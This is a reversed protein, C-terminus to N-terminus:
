TSRMAGTLHIKDMPIFKESFPLSKRTEDFYFNWINFLLSDFEENVFARAFKARIMLISALNTQSYPSLFYTRKLEAFKAEYNVKIENLKKIQAQVDAFEPNFQKNKEKIEQMKSNVAELKRSLQDIEEVLKKFSSHSDESSLEGLVKSFLIQFFRPYYVGKCFLFLVKMADSPTMSKVKPEFLNELHEYLRDIEPDRSTHNISNKEITSFEQVLSIAQYFSVKSFNLNLLKKAVLIVGSRSIRVSARRLNKLIEAIDQLDVGEKKELLSLFFGSANGQFESVFNVKSVVKIQQKYSANHLYTMNTCTLSKLIRALQSRNLEAIRPRMFRLIKHYFEVSETKSLSLFEMFSILDELDLHDKLEFLIKSCIRILKKSERDDFCFNVRMYEAVHFSSAFCFSILGSVQEEPFKKEQILEFASKLQSSLIDLMFRFSIFSDKYMLRPPCIKNLSAFFDAGKEFDLPLPSLLSILKHMSGQESIDIALADNLADLHKQHFGPSKPDTQILKKAFVSALNQTTLKLTFARRVISLM